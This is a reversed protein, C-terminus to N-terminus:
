LVSQKHRIKLKIVKSKSRKTVAISSTTQLKKSGKAHEQEIELDVSNLSINNLASATGSWQKESQDEDPSTSLEHDNNTLKSSSAEDETYVDSEYGDSDSLEGCDKMIIPVETDTFVPNIVVFWSPLPKAGKGTKRARNRLKSWGRKLWKFKARLIPISLMSPDEFLCSNEEHKEINEESRDGTPLTDRLESGNEKNETEAMNTSKGTKRARNRLKSWGRKLWKFKARLIPISLMSPDEFLCSNEEHKEINEESRDGTPLTDRLESGNEKNETEAMNTSKGGPKQQKLERLQLGIKRFIEANASKKLARENLKKAYKTEPAALSRAFATIQDNSWRKGRKKKLGESINVASEAM